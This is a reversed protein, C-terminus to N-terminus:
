PLRSVVAKSASSTNGASASDRLRTNRTTRSSRAETPSTTAATSDSTASTMVASRMALRTAARLFPLIALMGSATSIREGSPTSVSAARAVVNSKKSRVGPQSRIGSRKRSRTLELVLIAVLKQARGQEV